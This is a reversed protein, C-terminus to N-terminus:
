LFECELVTVPHSIILVEIISVIKVELQVNSRRRKQIFKRGMM